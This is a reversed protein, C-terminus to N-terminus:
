NEQKKNQKPLKKQEEFFVGAIEGISIVENIVLFVIFTFRLV